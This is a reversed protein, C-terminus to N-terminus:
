IVPFINKESKRTGSGFSVLHDPDVALLAGGIKVHTSTDCVQSQCVVGFRTLQWTTFTEICDASHGNGTRSGGARALSGPGFSCTM